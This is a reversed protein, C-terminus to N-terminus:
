KRCLLYRKIAEEGYMQSPEPVKKFQKFYDIQADIFIHYKYDNEEILKRLYVFDAHYLRWTEKSDKLGTRTLYYKYYKLTMTSDSDTRVVENKEEYLFIYNKHYKFKNLAYAKNMKNLGISIYREYGDMQTFGFLDTFEQCDATIDVLTTWYTDGKILPIFRHHRSVREATLIKNFLEPDGQRIVKKIAVRKKVDKVEILLRFPSLHAAKKFLSIVQEDSLIGETIKKFDTLSINLSPERM